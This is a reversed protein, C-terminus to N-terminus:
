STPLVFGTAALRAASIPVAPGKIEGRYELPPLDSEASIRDFVQQNTEPVAEPVLNHVGTLRHDIAFRMARAVDDVHVRYFLGDAAFPVSGGLFQHAMRVKEEIPPDAAGFIDPCRFVCSRDAISRWATEAARFSAPSPDDSDTLPSDETVEDLHNAADGYVAMSSLALVHAASPASAVNEATDVLVERYHTARDEPTMSRAANPGALVAVVDADAVAAHVAARDSGRLLLVEDCGDRLDAVKDPTTTTGTVHHGEARLGAALRRGVLGVGIILVRTM